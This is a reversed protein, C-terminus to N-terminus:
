ALFFFLFSLFVASTLVSLNCNYSHIAVGHRHRNRNNAAGAGYIPVISGPTRDSGGGGGGGGGGNAGGGGGHGARINEVLGGTLNRGYNTKEIPKGMNEEQVKDAIFITSSSSSATFLMLALFMSFFAALNMGMNSM